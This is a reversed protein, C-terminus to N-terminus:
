TMRLICAEEVGSRARMASLSFSVPSYLVLYQSLVPLRHDPESQQNLMRSFLGGLCSRAFSRKKLREMPKKTAGALRVSSKKTDREFVVRHVGILNAGGIRGKV